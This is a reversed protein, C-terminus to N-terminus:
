EPSLLTRIATRTKELTVGQCTLIQTLEKDDSRLLGLLIHGVGIQGQGLDRNEDLAREIVYKARVKPARMSALAETAARESRIRALEAVAARSIQRDIGVAALLKLADESEENLLGLLIHAPGIYGQKFQMAKQNAIRM